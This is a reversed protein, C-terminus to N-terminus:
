KDPDDSLAGAFVAPNAPALGAIAQLKMRIFERHPVHLLDAIKRVLSEEYKDVHGDSCTVQWLMGIIKVKEEPGCTRNILRTFPYLSTAHQSESEASSAINRTLEPSLGFHKEILRGIDRFEGGTICDDARAVEMLLTATALQLERAEDGQAGAGPGSHVGLLQRLKEMM